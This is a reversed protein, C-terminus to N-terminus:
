IYRRGILVGLGLFLFLLSTSIDNIKATERAQIVSNICSQKQVEEMKKEDETAARPEGSMKTYIQPYIMCDEERQSYPMGGFFIPALSTSGMTPYKDFFALNIGTKVSMFIGLLLLILGLLSIFSNVKSKKQEM